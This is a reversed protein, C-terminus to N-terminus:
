YVAGHLTLRLTQLALTSSGGTPDVEVAQLSGGPVFCTGISVGDTHVEWSHSLFVEDGCGMPPNWIDAYVGSGVSVSRGTVCVTAYDYSQLSLFGLMLRLRDSPGIVAAGGIKAEEVPIDGLANIVPWNYNPHTWEPEGYGPTNSYTWTPSTSPYGEKGKYSIQIWPGDEPYGCADVGVPQNIMCNNACDDADNNNGDDCEEQGAWVFGDGCSAAKCAVCADTDSGNGDDCEEEGQLVLGDGCVALQCALTCAGGDSNGNGQDCQEGLSGQTFGDGCAPTQCLDTCGDDQDGNQGDDSEEGDDVLGDGCSPAVVGCVGDVCTLGDDCQGGDCACGETGPVCGGTTEDGTTADGTTADTTADGTTADGSDTADTTDSETAGTETAGTETAGASVGDSDHTDEGATTGVTATSPSSSASM